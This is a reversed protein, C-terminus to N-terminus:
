NQSLLPVYLICYVLKYGKSGLLCESQCGTEKWHGLYSQDKGGAAGGGTHFKAPVCKGDNCWNKDGCRTGELAPGVRYSGGPKDPSTCLVATCVDSLTSRTHAHRAAHQLYFMQCQCNLGCVEGPM